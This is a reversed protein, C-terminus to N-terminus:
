ICKKVLGSFIQVFMIQLRSIYLHIFPIELPQTPVAILGPVLPTQPPTDSPYAPPPPARSVNQNLQRRGAECRDGGEKAPEAWQVEFSAANTSPCLECDVCFSSRIFGLHASFLLISHLLSSDTWSPLSSVTNSVAHVVSVRRSLTPQRRCCISRRRSRSRLGHPCLLASGWPSQHRTSYKQLTRRRGLRTSFCCFQFSFFFLLQCVAVLSPWSWNTSVCGGATNKIWPEAVTRVIGTDDSDGASSTNSLILDANNLESCLSNLLWVNFCCYNFFCFVSLCVFTSTAAFILQSWYYRCFRWSCTGFQNRTELLPCNIQPLGHPWM